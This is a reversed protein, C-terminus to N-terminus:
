GCDKIDNESVNTGYIDAIAKVVDPTKRFDFAQDNFFGKSKINVASDELVQVDIESDCYIHFYYEVNNLSLETEQEEESPKDLLINNVINNKQKQAFSLPTLNDGDVEFVEIDFNEFDFDVNEELMDALVYDTEISLFKGGDGVPGEIFKNNLDQDGDLVDVTDMPLGSGLEGADKIEYRFTLKTNIQDIPKNGLPTRYDLDYSDVNGNMLTLAIAPLKQNGIDASSLAYALTNRALPAEVNIKDGGDFDVEQTIETESTFKYQTQLQPTDQRIRNKAESQSEEVGGYEADYMINDDFFAYYAPKMKGNALLYKGYPTLEIDLVEEKKNMFLM